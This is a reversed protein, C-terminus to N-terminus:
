ITIRKRLLECPIVRWVCLHITQVVFSFFRVTPISIKAVESVNGFFMNKHIRRSKSIVIVYQSYQHSHTNTYM